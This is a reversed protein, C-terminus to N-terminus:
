DIVEFRLGKNRANIHSHSDRYVKFLVGPLDRVLNNGLFKMSRPLQISRIGSVRKFADDWMGEVAAGGITEPIIVDGGPGHYNRITCGNRNPIRIVEFQDEPNSAGHGTSGGVIGALLDAAQALQEEETTPTHSSGGSSGTGTSGGDPQVIQQLLRAAETLADTMAEPEDGAPTSSASGDATRYTLNNERAYKEAESGPEVILTLSSCGAFADRGIETVTGPIRLERLAKCNSFCRTQIRKLGQPLVLRVLSGCNEFAYEGLDEMSQPLVVEQLPDCNAFGWFSVARLGEPLVVRTVKADMFPKNKLLNLTRGEIKEPIVVTESQGVYRILDYTTSTVTKIEFDSDPNPKEPTRRATPPAEDRREPRKGAGQYDGMLCIAHKNNRAYQHAPSDPEVVLTVKGCGNFAEDDIATERGLIVVEELATCNNFAYTGIRKTGEPLVVRRLSTCGQLACAGIYELTEPLRLEELAGCGQLLFAPLEQLGDPLILARLSRVSSRFAMDSIARVEKGEATQPVVIRESSGSYRNLCMGEGRESFSFESAPTVPGTYPPVAPRSPQQKRKPAAPQEVVPPAAPEPQPEPQPEVFDTQDGSMLIQAEQLIREIDDEAEAPAPAEAPTQEPEPEPKKPPAPPPQPETRQPQPQPTPPQQPQPPQPPYHGYAGTQVGGFVIVPINETMAYRQAVSDPYVTLKAGCGHFADDGLSMVSAPITMYTMSGCGEFARAGIARLTDPLDLKTLSQCNCFAGDGIFELGSPLNLQTLRANMEFARAEIIKLTTPLIIMQLNFCQCFARERIAGVNGMIFVTNLNLKGQFAGPGIEVVPVGNVDAPIMLTSDTGTYGDISVGGPVPRTVFPSAPATPATHRQPFFDELVSFLKRLATPSQMDQAQLSRGEFEEPLKSASFGGYLLPVITKNEGMDMMDLFRLWESRVWASNLNDVDACAMFMVKATKLAHYIAAEYPAGPDLSDKPAFFVRYGARKLEEYLQLTYEYEATKVGPQGLRDTKHCLFVDFAPCKKARERISEQVQDVYVAQRRYEEAMEPSALKCAKRFEPMQQLPRPRPFRVTAKKEKTVPDVVFVVGYRALLFGWLAQHDNGHSNFLAEYSREARDFARAQRLENARAFADQEEETAQHAPRENTAGCAPCAMLLMEAKMTFQAACCICTTAYAPLNSM